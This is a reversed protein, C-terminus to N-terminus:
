MRAIAVVSTLWRYVFLVVLTTVLCVITSLAYITRTLDFQIASFLEVPLLTLSGGVLFLSLPVNDLSLLFAFFGGSFIAPAIIPLTIRLLTQFTGAGLGYAADELSSDFVALRALVVTSVYPIAVSTHVLLLGTFTDRLPFGAIPEIASFYQLFAVSMVLAPIQLPTRLISDFTNKTRLRGRSLALAALTGLVGALIATGTALLVSNRFSIIWKAPISSYATFSFREPPFTALLEPGISNAVIMALPALLFLVGALVIISQVYDFLSPRISV